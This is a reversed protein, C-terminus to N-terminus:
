CCRPLCVLGQGHSFLFLCVWVFFFSRLHIKSRWIAVMPVITVVSFLLIWFSFARLGSIVGGNSAIEKFILGKQTVNYFFPAPKVIAVFSFAFILDLSLVPIMLVSPLIALKVAHLVSSRIIAWTDALIEMLNKWRWWSLAKYWNLLTVSWMDGCRRGQYNAM